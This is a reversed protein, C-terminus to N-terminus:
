SSAIFGPFSATCHIYKVTSRAVGGGGIVCVCVCVCM